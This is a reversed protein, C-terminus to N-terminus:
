KLEASLFTTAWFISKRRTFIANKPTVYLRANRLAKMILNIHKTHEAVNDSWTVINDLYIHCIKGIYERLAATVCCQHIAPANQLGMPM